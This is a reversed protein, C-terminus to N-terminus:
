MGSFCPLIGHRLEVHDQEVLFLYFARIDKLMRRSRRRALTAPVLGIAAPPALRLEEDINGMVIGMSDNDFAAFAAAQVGLRMVVMM